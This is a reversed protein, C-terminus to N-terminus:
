ESVPRISFGYCRYRGSRYVGDSDFYVCLGSGPDDTSLSSSWYLGYQGAAIFYSNSRGGAAPLFISKDKYGDVNSTVIIGSNGTGNYNSTRTWTCKNRLETWEADTPMRWKGGLKARAVDDMTEGNKEGRQLETINDVHGYSERTNYKSFKVNNESDGSTRFNYSVWNYGTIPHDTRSRWNSCPSDQSHGETYYPETEGWAYYDGYDEPNACLGSECLNSKAWYLKYTTGDGRTIVIGLDVAGSPITVVEETEKNGGNDNENDNTDGPTNEPNCAFLVALAPIALLYKRMYLM